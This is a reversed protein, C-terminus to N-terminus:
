EIIDNEEILLLQNQKSKVRFKLSKVRCLRLVKKTKVFIM